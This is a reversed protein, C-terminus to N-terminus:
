TAYWWFLDDVEFWSATNKKPSVKFLYDFSARQAAIPKAGLASPELHLADILCLAHSPRDYVTSPFRIKIQVCICVYGISYPWGYM